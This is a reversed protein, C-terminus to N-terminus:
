DPAPFPGRHKGQPARTRGNPVVARNRSARQRRPVAGGASAGKQAMGGGRYDVLRQALNWSQRHVKSRHAKALERVREYQGDAKALEADIVHEGAPGVLVGDRIEANPVRARIVGDRIALYTSM